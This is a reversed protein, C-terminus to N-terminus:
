IVCVDHELWGKLKQCGAEAHVRQADWRHRQFASSKYVCFGSKNAQSLWENGLALPMREYVILRSWYFCALPMRLLSPLVMLIFGNDTPLKLNPPTHTFGGPHFFSFFFLGEAAKISRTSLPLISIVRQCINYIHTISPQCTLDGTPVSINM